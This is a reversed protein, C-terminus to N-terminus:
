RAGHNSQGTEYKGSQVAAFFDEGVERIDPASHSLARRALRFALDYDLLVYLELFRRYEDYTGNYILPEATQEINAVVWERPLSLITKRIREISGHSYSALFVLEDFLQMHEASSLYLLLHIGIIKDKGKLAQKILSIRTEVDLALFDHLAQIYALYSASLNELLDEQNSVANEGNM